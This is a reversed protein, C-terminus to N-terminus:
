VCYVNIKLFSWYLDPLYLWKEAYRLPQPNLAALQSFNTQQVAIDVCSSLFFVLLPPVAM